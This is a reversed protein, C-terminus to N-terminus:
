LMHIKFDGATNKLMFFFCIYIRDPFTVKMNHILLIVYNNKLAACLLLYGLIYSFLIGHTLAWLFLCWLGM